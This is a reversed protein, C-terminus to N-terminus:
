MRVADEDGSTLCYRITGCILELQYRGDDFMCQRMKAPLTLSLLFRTVVSRWEIMFGLMLM